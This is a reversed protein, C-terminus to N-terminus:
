GAVKEALADAVARLAPDWDSFDPPSFVRAQPYWPYRDTGLRTWVKPATIMWIPAGCAGALNM